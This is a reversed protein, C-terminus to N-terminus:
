AKPEETEMPERNCACLPPGVQDLWKQTTRATYGCDKCVCKLMRTGQKPPGSNPSSPSLAAHPFDAGIFRLVPAAIADAFTPAATTAKMPGVLHMAKCFAAFRPGHQEELGVTAHGLEHVLIDLIRHQDDMMPSIFVEFTEDKSNVASWCQGIAKRVGRGGPWGVSVRLRDPITYGAAKAIPRLAIVAANLWDERSDIKPVIPM